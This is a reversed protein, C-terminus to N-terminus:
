PLEKLYAALQAGYTSNQINEPFLSYLSDLLKPNAQPMETLMVYAAVEHEKNLNVFQAAYRYRRKLWRNYAEQNTRLGATDNQQAFELQEKILELRENNFQRSITLYEKLRKHNESGSITAETDFKDVSTTVNVTGKEGFFLLYDNVDNGDNKDLHLYFVEPEALDSYFTFNPDGDVVMSDVNSFTSDQLRKLYLTGKKLGKVTGQVIM